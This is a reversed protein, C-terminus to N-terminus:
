RGGRMVKAKEDVITEGNQTQLYGGVIGYVELYGGQNVVDGTVTGHLFVSGGEKIILNSCCMGHLYLNGGKDVIVDGTVMGHLALEYDLYLNGDLKGHEAIM